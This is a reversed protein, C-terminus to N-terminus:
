LTTLLKEVRVKGQKIGYLDCVGSSNHLTSNTRVEAENRANKRKKRQLVISICAEYYMLAMCDDLRM